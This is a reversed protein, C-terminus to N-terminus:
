KVIGARVTSNSRIERHFFIMLLLMLLRIRPNYCLWQFIFCKGVGGSGLVVIKYERMTQNKTRNICLLSILRYYFTNFIVVFLVSWHRFDPHEDFIQFFITNCCNTSLKRLLCIKQLNFPHLCSIHRWIVYSFCSDSTIEAFPWKIQLNPKKEM